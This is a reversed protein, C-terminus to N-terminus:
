RAGKAMGGSKLNINNTTIVLSLASSQQVDLTHVGDHLRWLPVDQGDLVKALIRKLSLKEV